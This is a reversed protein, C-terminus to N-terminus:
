CFLLTYDFGGCFKGPQKLRWKLLCSIGEIIFKTGKCFISTMQVILKLIVESILFLFCTKRGVGYVFNM